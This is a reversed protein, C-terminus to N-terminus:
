QVIYLQIMQKNIYMFLLHTYVCVTYVSVSSVSRTHQKYTEFVSIIFKYHVV